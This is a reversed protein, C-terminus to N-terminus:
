RWRRPASQSGATTGRRAIIAHERMARRFLAVLDHQGREIGLRQEIETQPEAFAGARQERHRQHAGRRPQQGIDGIEAVHQGSIDSIISRLWKRLASRNM